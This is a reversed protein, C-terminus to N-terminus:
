RVLPALNNEIARRVFVPVCVIRMPRPTRQQVEASELRAGKAVALEVQGGSQARSVQYKVTPPVQQVVSRGPVTASTIEENVESMLVHPVVNSQSAPRLLRDVDM